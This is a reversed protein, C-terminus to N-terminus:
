RPEPRGCRAIVAAAGDASAAMARVVFRAATHGADTLSGELQKRVFATCYHNVIGQNGHALAAPSEDARITGDAQGREIETITDQAHASSSERLAKSVLPDSAALNILGYLPFNKVVFKVSAVTGVYIRDLAETRDEIAELQAAQLQVRLDHVVALFLAEKSEFYWYLLGKAVGAEKAIDIMRTDRYGRERFLREAHALLDARRDVQDPRAV